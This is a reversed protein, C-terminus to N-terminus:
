TQKHFIKQRLEVKVNCNLSYYKGWSVVKVNEGTITLAIFLLSDHCINLAKPFSANVLSLISPYITLNLNM